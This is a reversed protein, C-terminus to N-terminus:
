KLKWGQGDSIIEIAGDKDTRLTKIGSDELIKLTEPAPHGYHNGKGVSIIALQPKLFDVIEKTLAKRSGHHPVKLVTSGSSVGAETLIQNEADGTQLALFGHYKINFVLSYNNFEGGADSAGLVQPSVSILDKRWIRKEGVAEKPWYFNVEVEGLKLRDGAKPNYIKLGKEDAVAQRFKGFVASPNIINEVFLHNIKYRKIVDVLGTLHDAEPHTSVVVDIEKDYFPRHASLCSLVRDDPGGDILVEYGSPSKLYIADGQGVDCFVLHLKGDNFSLFQWIGIGIGCFIAVGLILILNRKFNKGWSEM